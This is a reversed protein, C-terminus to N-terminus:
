PRTKSAGAPSRAPWGGCARTSPSGASPSGTTRASRSRCAATPMLSPPLRCCRRESTATARGRSALRRRRPVRGAPPVVSGDGLSPSRTSHAAAPEVELEAAPLWTADDVELLIDTIRTGLLGGLASTTRVGIPSDRCSEYCRRGARRRSPPTSERAAGAARVGHGGGRREGRRSEISVCALRAPRRNGAPTLVAPVCRVQPPHLAGSVRCVPGAGDADFGEVGGVPGAALRRVVRRVGDLQDLVAPREHRVPWGVPGGGGRRWPRGARGGARGGCRSASPATRPRRPRRRLPADAAGAGSAYRRPPCRRPGRLRRTASPARRGEARCEGRGARPARPPARVCGRPVSPMTSSSPVCRARRPPQARAPPGVAVRTGIGGHVRPERIM